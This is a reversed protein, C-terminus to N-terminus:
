GPRRSPEQLGHGREYFRLLLVVAEQLLSGIPVEIDVSLHRLRAHVDRSLATRVM